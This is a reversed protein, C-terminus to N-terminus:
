IYKQQRGFLNLGPAPREKWFSCTSVDTLWRTEVTVDSRQVVVYFKHFFFITVGSWLKLNYECLYSIKPKEFFHPTELAQM